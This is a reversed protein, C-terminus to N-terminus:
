RHPRPVIILPGTDYVREETVRRKPMVDCVWGTDALRAILQDARDHCFGRDHRGIWLVTGRGAEKSKAYRVECLLDSGPEHVVEIRRIEDNFRCKVETAAATGATVAAVMGSVIGIAARLLGRRKM